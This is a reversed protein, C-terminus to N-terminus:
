RSACAGHIADVNAATALWTRPVPAQRVLVGVREPQVAHCVGQGSVAFDTLIGPALTSRWTVPLLTGNPGYAPSDLAPDLPVLKGAVILKWVPMTCNALDPPSGRLIRPKIKEDVRPDGWLNIRIGPHLREYQRAMQKHWEIGYGGEFVAVEVTTVAHGSHPRLTCGGSLLVPLLLLLCTLLKCAFKRMRKVEACSRDKEQM